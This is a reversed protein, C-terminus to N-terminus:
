AKGSYFSMKSLDIGALSAAAEWRKEVATEFIVQKDAAAYVWANESMELELQSPAWGAYGLALLYNAIKEGGALAELFDASTTLRLEDGITLTNDWEHSADHLAFVHDPRVPGGHWIPRAPHQLNETPLGADSFLEAVTLQLPQNIVVGMAGEDDHHCILTVSHAFSEDQLSPMAILFHNALSKM